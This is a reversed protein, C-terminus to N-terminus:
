FLSLKRTGQGILFQHYGFQLVIYQKLQYNRPATHRPEYTRSFWTLLYFLGM